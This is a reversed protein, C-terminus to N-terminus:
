ASARAHSSPRALSSRRASLLRPRRPHRRRLGCARRKRVKGDGNEDLRKFLDVVGAGGSAAAVEDELWGHMGEPVAGGEAGTEGSYGFFDPIQQLADALEDIDIEGSGDTDIADFLAKVQGKKGSWEKRWAEEREIRDLREQELAGYMDRCFALLTRRDTDGGMNTFRLIEKELRKLEHAYKASIYIQEKSYM